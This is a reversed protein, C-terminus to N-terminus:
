IEEEDEEPEEEDDGDDDDDEYDEEDELEEKDEDLIDVNDDIEDITAAFREDDIESVTVDLTLRVKSGATVGEFLEAIEADSVSLQIIDQM